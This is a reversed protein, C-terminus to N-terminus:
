ARVKLPEGANPGPTQTFAAAPTFSVTVIEDPPCTMFARMLAEEYGLRVLQRVFADRYREVRARLEDDADGITADAGKLQMTQHNEPLSFVIAVKGTSRIDALIPEAQAQWLALTVRDRKDTLRCGYARVISPVNDRSCSGMTMSVAGQMFAAHEADIPVPPTNPM